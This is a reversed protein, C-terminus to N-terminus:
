CSRLVWGCRESGEIQWGPTGPPTREPADGMSHGEGDVEVALKLDHCYFDLVYPGVPHQKRFHLGDLKRAKIPNWLIVEPLSLRRRLKKAFDKTTRPADM